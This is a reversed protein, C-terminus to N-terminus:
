GEDASAATESEAGARVDAELSSSVEAFYKFIDGVRNRLGQELDAFDIQTKEWGARAKMTATAYALELDAQVADIDAAVDEYVEGAEVRAQIEALKVQAETQAASLRADVEGEAAGKPVTIGIQNAATEETPSEDAEGSFEDPQASDYAYLAMLFVLFTIIGYIIIRSPSQTTNPEL